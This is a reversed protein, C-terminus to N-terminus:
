PALRRTRGGDAAIALGLQILRRGVRRRVSRRLRQPERDVWHRLRRDIERQRELLLDRAVHHSFVTHEKRHDYTRPGISRLRKATEM